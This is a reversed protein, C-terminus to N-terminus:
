NESAAAILIATRVDSQFGCWQDTSHPSHAYSLRAAVMLQPAAPPATFAARSSSFTGARALSYFITRKQGRRSPALFHFSGPVTLFTFRLELFSPGHSIAVCVTQEAHPVSIVALAM